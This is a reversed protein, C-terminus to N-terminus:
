SLPSCLLEADTAAQKILDFPVDQSQQLSVVRIITAAQEQTLLQQPLIENYLWVTVTDSTPAQFQGTIAAAQLLIASALLDLVGATCKQTLLINASRLKANALQTLPNITSASNAEYLLPLAALTSFAQLRKLSALAKTDIVGVPVTCKSLQQASDEDSSNTPNVVVLVGKVSGQVRQIRYRFVAQISELLQRIKLDDETEALTVTTPTAKLAVSQLPTDRHKDLSVTNNTLADILTQLMKKSVGVVDEASEPSIINDFLDRKSKVLKTVQQEYSDEALMSFIQVNNKQGPKHVRAIRQDLIAPNWPMDLNILVTASQLNLGVGGADTSILVPTTNDKQFRKILEARKENSITGHLRVCTLGMHQILTEVMETMLAWQSFIVAKHKNHLCLDELLHALEHLKPSGQTEKDILGAANCAMRAQQLAAMLGHQEGPTLTRRTALQALQNATSMAADHLERQKKDLPVDLRVETKEPLQTNIESHSRQLVVPAIRKHLAPLNRHGIVNGQDDTIQYDPLYRWLPDLLQADVVQLLSYVDELHRELALSSLVFIYPYPIRKLKPIIRTRWNNIRQVEDLILLDPALEASILNLDRMLVEYTVIIFLADSQYQLARQEANGQIIQSAHSTFKKIERAWQYKLSAPCVILVKKVDGHSVLWSAAAIAQVTKGLGMDDALIARGRSALFAVGETQYPFLRAKLSPIVGNSSLIDQSIQETRITQAERKVCQQAYHQADEGIHFDERSFVHEAFRFFDGPLHGTFTKNPAFFDACIANLDDSITAIPHLRIVPKNDEWALYVFSVPTGAAKFTNYDLKSQAYHLVAEIHQCTGLRHRILDPCNCYNARQDLSRIHVQYAHPDPHTSTAQWIGFGLNGSILKVRVENQAKKICNQLMEHAANAIHSDYREAQATYSQLAAIAHKCVNNEANCDCQVVLKGGTSQTLEVAHPPTNADGDAVQATLTHDQRDLVLVRQETFYALGQQLVDYSAIRNFRETDYIFLDKNM